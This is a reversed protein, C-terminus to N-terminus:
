CRGCIWQSAGKLNTLYAQLHLQVFNQPHFTQFTSPSIGQGWRRRHASKLCVTMQWGHLNQRTSTIFEWLWANSTKLKFFIMKSWRCHCQQVSGANPPGCRTWPPEAPILASPRSLARSWFLQGWGVSTHQPVEPPARYSINLCKYM